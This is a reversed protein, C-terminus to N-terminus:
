IPTAIEDDLCTKILWAPLGAVAATTAAVIIFSHSAYNIQNVGKQQLLHCLLKTSNSNHSHILGEWVSCLLILILARSLSLYTTMVRIPCMSSGTSFTQITQGSQFPNTKSQYLTVFM